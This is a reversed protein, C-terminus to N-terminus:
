SGSLGNWSHCIGKCSYVPVRYSEAMIRQDADMDHSYQETSLVEVGKTQSASLFQGSNFSDTAKGSVQQSAAEFCEINGSSAKEQSCLGVTNESTCRLFGALASCRSSSYINCSSTKSSRQSVLGSGASSSDGISWVRRFCGNARQLSASKRVKSDTKKPNLDQTTANKGHKPEGSNLKGKTCFRVFHKLVYRFYLIKQWWISGFNKWLGDSLLVAWFTQHANQLKQSLPKTMRLLSQRVVRVRSQNWRQWEENMLNRSLLEFMINLTIFWNRLSRYKIVKSLLWCWKPAASKSATQAVDYSESFEKVKMWKSTAYTSVCLEGGYIFKTTDRCLM